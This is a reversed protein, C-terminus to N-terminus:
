TRDFVVEEMETMVFVTRSRDLFNAEDATIPAWDPDTFSAVFDRYSAFVQEAVGDWEPGDPRDYDRAVRHHQEYRLVHRRAAANAAILPAHVERWHRHFDDVSMGPKRAVFCMLKIM